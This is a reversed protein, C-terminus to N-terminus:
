LKQLKVSFPLILSLKLRRLKYLSDKKLLEFRCISDKLYQGNIGVSLDCWDKDDSNELVLSNCIEIGSNMMSYNVSPLYDIKVIVKDSTNIMQETM